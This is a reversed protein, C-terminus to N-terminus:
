LYNKKIINLQLKATTNQKIGQTNTEDTNEAVVKENDLVNTDDTVINQKEAEPDVEGGTESSLVGTTVVVLYM